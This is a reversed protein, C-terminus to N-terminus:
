EFFYWTKMSMVSVKITLGNSAFFSSVFFTSKRYWGDVAVIVQKNGEINVDFGYKVLRYWVAGFFRGFIGIGVCELYEYVSSEFRLKM